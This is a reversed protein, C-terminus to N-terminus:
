QTDIVLVPPSTGERAWCTAAATSDTFLAFAVPGMGHVAATVDLAAWQGTKLGTVTSLTTGRAPANAATISTETWDTGTTAVRLQTCDSTMLVKLTARAVTSLGAPDFRLYSTVAPSGDVRLKTATGTGAGTSADVYADATCTFTAQAPASPTTAVATNSRPSLNDADDVAEVTWGYTTAAQLGDDTYDLSAVEGQLVGDRRVQYGRVRVNDTSAAWALRVIALSPDPTATLSTPASPATLDGAGTTVTVTLSTTSGHAVRVTLLRNGSDYSWCSSSAAQVAARSSEQPILTGAVKVSSPQVATSVALDALAGAPHSMSVLLTGSDGSVSTIGACDLRTYHRKDATIVREIAATVGAPMGNVPLVLLPQTMAVFTGAGDQVAARVYSRAGTVTVRRTADYAPGTASETSATVGDVVWTVTHATSLGSDIRLRVDATPTARSVWLPFRAPYPTQLLGTTLLVRGPFTNTALYCRGEWFSRVLENFGLTDSLVYTALGRDVAHLSATKHMDSTWSGLLHTQTLVADWIDMMVRPTGPRPCCEIWDAGYALNDITEATSTGGPLGPHNLQAPTGLQQTPLVGQSGSSYSPMQSAQTIAFEFRQVHRNLGLEISPFVKFAATDFDSIKSNRHIFDQAGTPETAVDFHFDDVNLSVTGHDAFATITIQNFGNYDLPREAAPLSALAAAVDLSYSSWSGQAPTALSNVVVRSDPNSSAVFLPASQWVFLVSRGPHPVNDTTTFGEPSEIRADGGLSCTIAIGCKPDIRSANVAFTIRHGSAGLTPGRQRCVGVQGTSTSTVALKLSASGSRVPKNVMATTVGSTTGDRFDNWKTGLSEDLVVHNAIVSGIVGSNAAQHDSLFMASYGLQRAATAIIGVDCEGDGSVCSHVHPDTKYWSWTATPDSPASAALAEHHPLALLTSTGATAAGIGLLRLFGRRSLEAEVAAVTLGHDHDKCM